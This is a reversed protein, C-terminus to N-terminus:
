TSRKELCFKAPDAFFSTFPFRALL